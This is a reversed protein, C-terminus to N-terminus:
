PVPVEVCQVKVAMQHPPSHEIEIRDADFRGCRLLSIREINALPLTLTSDITMDVTGAGASLNTVQRQYKTGSTEKVEIDFAGVRGLLALGALNAVTITTGSIDAAPALDKGNSSMWFAKQKGRRSHLWKRITQSEARTHVNWRMSFSMDMYDSQRLHVPLGSGNDFTELLWDSGESLTGSSVVPIDSMLDHGRYTTFSSAGLDLNEYAIFTAKTANLGDSRRAASIGQPCHSAFIPILKAATYSNVVALANIRDAGVSNVTVVEYNTDSEWLMVQAGINVNSLTFSDAIVDINAGPNVVGDAQLVSHVAEQQTWDPAYFTEAERIMARAASYELDTMLYKYQWSRRPLTRLAVRQEAAKARMVDTKWELVETVSGQPKFPWLQPM